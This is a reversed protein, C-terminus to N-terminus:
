RNECAALRTIPAHSRRTFGNVRTDQELGVVISDIAIDETQHLIRSFGFVESLIRKQTGLTM